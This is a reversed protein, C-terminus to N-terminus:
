LPRRSCGAAFRRAARLRIASLIVAAIQELADAETRMKWLLAVKQYSTM